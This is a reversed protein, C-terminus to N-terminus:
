LRSRNQKRPTNRKADEEAKIRKIASGAVAAVVRIRNVGSDLELALQLAEDERSQSFRVIGDTLNLNTIRGGHWAAGKQECGLDVRRWVSLQDIKTQKNRNLVTVANKLVKFRNEFDSESLQKEVAVLVAARAPPDTVRESLNIADLILQKSEEEKGDKSLQSSLRLLLLARHEPSEVRNAYKLAEDITISAKASAGAMAMDYYIFQIVNSRLDLGSIKDAISMARKFETKYSLDLSVKAYVVDRQCSGALQEAKELTDEVLPGSDTSQTRARDRDALIARIKNLIASRRDPNIAQSSQTGLAAWRAYLDPRYKEIEPLSYTVTFFVLSNVAEVQEPTASNLSNIGATIMQDATNLFAAALARNPRLTDFRFGSIGSFQAPDMAGGFAEGYGFAYGALWLLKPLTRSNPHNLYASYVRDAAAPNRKQLQFILWASDFSPGFSVSSLAITEATETDSNLLDVATTIAHKAGNGKDLLLRTLTKALQPDRKAASSIIRNLAIQRNNENEVLSASDLAAVFLEKSKDPSLEWYADAISTMAEPRVEDSLSRADIMQQDLLNAWKSIKLVLDSPTASKKPLDQLVSASSRAVSVSTILSVAVGACIGM